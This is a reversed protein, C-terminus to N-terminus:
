PTSRREDCARLVYGVALGLVVSLVFWAGAGLAIRVLLTRTM